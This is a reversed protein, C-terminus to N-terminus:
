LDDTIEDGDQDPLTDARSRAAPTDATDSRRTTEARRTSESTAATTSTVQRGTHGHLRVVFLRSAAGAACAEDTAAILFEREQRRGEVGVGIRVRVPEGADIRHACVVYDGAAPVGPWVLRRRQADQM